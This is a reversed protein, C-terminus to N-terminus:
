VSEDLISFSIFTMFLGLSAIFPVLPYALMVLGSAIWLNKVLQRKRRYKRTFTRRYFHKEDPEKSAMWDPKIFSLLWLLWNWM